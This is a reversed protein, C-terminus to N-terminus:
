KLLDSDAETRLGRPGHCRLHDGARRTDDRESAEVPTRDARLVLRLIPRNGARGSPRHVLQTRNSVLELTPDRIELSAQRRKRLRRLCLSAFSSLRSVPAPLRKCERRRVWQPAPEFADTRSAALAAPAVPTATRRRPPRARSATTSDITTRSSSELILAPVPDRM